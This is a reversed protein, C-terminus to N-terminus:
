NFSFVCIRIHELTTAVNLTSLLKRGSPNM